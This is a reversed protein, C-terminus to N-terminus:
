ILDAYRDGLAKLGRYIEGRRGAARMENELEDNSTEGVRMRTSDYTLIELEEINDDTKGAMVSHVGCSNNGIIGGLTCHNHTSPDPGFTLHYREAADRLDDLVVGPQIRARKRSPDLDLIRHMYKSL